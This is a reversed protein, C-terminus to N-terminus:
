KKLIVKDKSKPDLDFRTTTTVKSRGKKTVEADLM